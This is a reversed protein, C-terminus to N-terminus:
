TSHSLILDLRYCNGVQSTHVEYPHPMRTAGRLTAQRRRQTSLGVLKDHGPTTTMIHRQLCWWTNYDHHPTAPMILREIRSWANSAPM